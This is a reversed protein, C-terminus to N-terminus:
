EEFYERAEDAADQIARKAEEKEDEIEERAEELGERVEEKAKEMDREAESGERCALPAPALTLALLLRITTGRM